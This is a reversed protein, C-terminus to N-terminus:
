FIKKFFIMDYGIVANSKRVQGKLEKAKDDLFLSLVQRGRLM